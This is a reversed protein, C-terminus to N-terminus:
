NTALANIQASPNLETGDQKELEWLAEVIKQAPKKGRAKYYSWIASCLTTELNFAIGNGTIGTAFLRINGWEPWTDDAWLANRFPTGRAVLCLQFELPYKKTAADASMQDDTFFVIQTTDQPANLVGLEFHQFEGYFKVSNDLFRAVLMPPKYPVQALRPDDLPYIQMDALGRDLVRVHTRARKFAEKLSHGTL